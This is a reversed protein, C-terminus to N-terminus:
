GDWSRSGAVGPDMGGGPGPISSGNLGDAIAELTEAGSRAGDGIWERLCRSLGKEVPNSDYEAPDFGLDQNHASTM